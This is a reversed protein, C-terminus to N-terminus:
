EDAGFQADIEPDAAIVGEEDGSDLALDFSWEDFHPEGIGTFAAFEQETFYAVIDYPAYECLESPYVGQIKGCLNNRFADKAREYARTATDASLAKEYDEEALDAYFMEDAIYKALFSEGYWQVRQEYFERYWKIGEANGEQWLKDGFRLEDGEKLLQALKEPLNREECMEMYYEGLTRGEFIFNDDYYPHIRIAFVDNEQANELVSVLRFSVYNKGQWETLGESDGNLVNEAHIVRGPVSQTSSVMQSHEATTEAADSSVPLKEEVPLVQKTLIGRMLFGAAILIVLVAAAASWKRFSGSVSKEPIMDAAEILDDDLESIARRIKESKM